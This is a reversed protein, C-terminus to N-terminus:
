KKPAMSESITVKEAETKGDSNTKLTVLVSSGVKVDDAKADKGDKTYTTSKSLVVTHSEGTMSKVSLETESKATVAGSLYKAADNAAAVTTSPNSEIAGVPLGVALLPFAVLATWLLNPHTKMRDM